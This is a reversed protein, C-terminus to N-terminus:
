YVTIERFGPCTNEKKTNECHQGLASVYVNYLTHQTFEKFNLIVNDNTEISGKLTGMPM